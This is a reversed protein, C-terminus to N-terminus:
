PEGASEVPLTEGPALRTPEVLGYRPDGPLLIRVVDGDRWLRPEIRPVRELARARALAEAVSGVDALFTVNAVTPPVMPLAGAEHDRLAQSPALWRAETVEGADASADQDSPAAAVFFRTDFRRPSGAPTVWHAVYGLVAVDIGEVARVVERFGITGALLRQRLEGLRDAGLSVQAGLLVGAEEFAERVAAVGLAAARPEDPMHAALDAGSRVLGDAVLAEDEADLSGGPFVYTSAVFAADKSRRLMLVELGTTPNDRLVM